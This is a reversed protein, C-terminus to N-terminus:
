QVPTIRLGHTYALYRDLQNGCDSQNSTDDRIVTWEIRSLFTHEWAGFALSCSCSTYMRLKTYYQSPVSYDVPEGNNECFDYTFPTLIIWTRIAM